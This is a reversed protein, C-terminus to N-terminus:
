PEKHMDKYMEQYLKADKAAEIHKKHLYEYRAMMDVPPEGTRERYEKILRVVADHLMQKHRSEELSISYLLELYDLDIVGKINIGLHYFLVALYAM